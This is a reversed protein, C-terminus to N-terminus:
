PGGGCACFNAAVSEQGDPNMVRINLSVMQGRFDIRLTFSSPSIDLIQYPLKTPTGVGANTIMVTMGTQFGNGKVAIDQSGSLPPLNYPELSFVQPPPPGSQVTFNFRGSRLGGPNGVELGYQGAAGQFDVSVTALSSTNDVLVPSSISLFPLESRYFDVTLGPQFGMGSLTIQQSQMFVAVPSAPAISTVVPGTGIAQVTFDFRASRHGDPNVLEMGYTGAIGGFDVPVKISTASDLSVQAGSLQSV